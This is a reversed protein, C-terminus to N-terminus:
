FISIEAVMRSARSKHRKDYHKIMTSINQHRTIRSIEGYTYDANLLHGIMGSRFSHPTIDKDIGVLKLHTKLERGLWSVTTKKKFKYKKSGFIYDNQGIGYRHIYDMMDTYDQIHVPTIENKVKNKQTKLHFYYEVSGDDMSKKYFDSPTMKMLEGPRMGSRWLTNYIIRFKKPVLDVNNLKQLDLKTVEDKGM